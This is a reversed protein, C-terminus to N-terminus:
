NEYTTPAKVTLFGNRVHAKLGPLSPQYLVKNKAFDVEIYDEGKSLAKVEGVQLTLKKPERFYNSQMYYVAEGDRLDM